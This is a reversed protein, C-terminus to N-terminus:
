DSCMTDQSRELFIIRINGRGKKSKQKRNSCYLLPLANNIKFPLPPYLQDRNGLAKIITALPWGRTSTVRLTEHKCVFFCLGNWWFCRQINKAQLSCHTEPMLCNGTEVQIRFKIFDEFKRGIKIESMRVNGYPVYLSKRISHPWLSTFLSLVSNWVNFISFQRSKVSWKLFNCMKWKEWTM